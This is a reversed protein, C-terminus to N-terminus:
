GTEHFLELRGVVSFGCSFGGSLTTMFVRTSDRTGWDVMEGYIPFYM